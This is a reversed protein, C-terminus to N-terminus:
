KEAGRSRTRLSLARQTLVITKIAKTRSASCSGFATRSSSNLKQEAFSQTTFSQIKGSLDACRYLRREALAENKAKDGLAFARACHKNVNFVTKDRTM